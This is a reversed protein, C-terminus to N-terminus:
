GRATFGIGFKSSIPSQPPVNTPPSHICCLDVVDAHYELARGICAEHCSDIVFFPSSRKYIFSVHSHRPRVPEAYFGTPLVDIRNGPCPDNLYPKGHWVSAMWAMPLLMLM